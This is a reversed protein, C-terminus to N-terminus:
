GRRRAHSTQKGRVSPSRVAARSKQLPPGSRGVPGASEATQRPSPQGREAAAGASWRFLQFRAAGSAFSSFAARVWPAFFAICRPTASEQLKIKQSAFIAPIRANPEPTPPYILETRTGPSNSRHNPTTRGPKEKERGAEGM